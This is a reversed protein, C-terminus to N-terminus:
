PVAIRKRAGIHSYCATWYVLIAKITEMLLDYSTPKVFFGQASDDYAECVNTDSAVTNFFLFPICKEKLIGERRAIKKLEYGSTKPMNIDCFVLFPFITPDTLYVLADEGSKFFVIENVCGLQDFVMTFVQQDDTDDEIVIIPGHKDMGKLLILAAM